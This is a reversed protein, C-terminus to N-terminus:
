LKKIEYSEVDFSYKGEKEDSNGESNVKSVNFIFEEANFGVEDINYEAENFEENIAKSIMDGENANYINIRRVGNDNSYVVALSDEKKSFIFNSIQCNKLLDLSVIKKAIPKEFLEELESMTNDGSSGGAASSNDALFTTISDEINAVCIYVQEQGETSIAVKKGTFSLGVKGFAENPVKTKYLMIDNESVYTDKPISNLSVVLNSNSGEEELIRLYKGDVFLEKKSQSKVENILYQDAIKEVKITLSELDSKPEASSTRIINYIYYAFNNGEVSKEKDFSTIESIGEGINVNGKLLEETCLKNAGEINGNKINFLYDKSIDLAKESDFLDVKVETNETRECATFNFLSFLLMCLSIVKKNKM